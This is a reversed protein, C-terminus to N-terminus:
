FDINVRICFSFLFFYNIYLSCTAIKHTCGYMQVVCRFSVVISHFIHFNTGNHAARKALASVTGAPVNVMATQNVVVTQNGVANRGLGTQKTNEDTVADATEQGIHLQALANGTMNIEFGICNSEIIASNETLDAVTGRIFSIM